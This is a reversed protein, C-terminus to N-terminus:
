HRTEPAAVDWDQVLRNRCARCLVLSITQAVDKAAEVPDQAQLEALVRALEEEIDGEPEPIYGDFLSTLEIKVGYRLQGPSFVLGCKDCRLM